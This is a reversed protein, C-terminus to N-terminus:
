ENLGLSSGYGELLRNTKRMGAPGSGTDMLLRQKLPTNKRTYADLLLANIEDGTLGAEALKNLARESFQGQDAVLDVLKQQQSAVKRESQKFSFEADQIRARDVTRSGMFTSLHEMPSQEVVGYSRGGPVLERDLSNFYTADVLSKGGVLPAVALYAKRKQADTYMGMGATDLLAMGATKGVQSMFSLAPFVDILSQTDELFFKALFPNWRMGSGVDLGTVASPIGRELWAPSEQLIRKPDPMWDYSQDYEVLMDRMFQYEVLIPLGIAGAMLQTVLMTSLAPLASRLTREKAMFQIDAVLNGLQATGYTLLPSAAQGVIGAKDVWAAKNSRNYAVMTLDTANAVADNLAMGTLGKGRYHEIMMNATWIRSFIDAAESPSQGTILRMVESFKKGSGAEMWKITNLENQLQPRLSTTNDILYRMVAASVADHTVAGFSRMSGKSFSNVIDMMPIDTDRLIHRIASPATLLQSVWFGPRNMLTSLYFMSSMVGMSKDVPSVKAVYDKKGFMKAVNTVLGDGANRVQKDFVKAWGWEPVANLGVDRIHSAMNFANPMGDVIAPDTLLRETDYKINNKTRISAQEDIWDFIANKYADGLEARTKFWESGAYGEVGKRFEQHKGFKMGTTSMQDLANTLGYVEPDLGLRDFMDRAFDSLEGLNATGELAKGIDGFETKYGPFSAVKEQFMRAEMETRFLQVRYIVDNAFVGVAFKGKRVAPYYDPRFPQVKRGQQKFLTNNEEFALNLAKKESVYADLVKKPVNAAELQKIRKALQHEFMTGVQEGADVLAKMEAKLSDITVAEDFFRKNWDHLVAGDEVTLDHFTKYVSNNDIYQKLEMWRKGVGRNADPNIGFKLTHEFSVKAAEARRVIESVYNVVPNDFIENLQLKGFINKYAVASKTGIDSLQGAKAMGVLQDQTYKLVTNINQNGLGRQIQRVLTARDAQPNIERASTVLTEGIGQLETFATRVKPDFGLLDMVGNLVKKLMSVKEVGKLSNLYSAFGEHSLGYALFEKLNSVPKTGAVKPLDKVSNYLNTLQNIARREKSTLKSPDLQFQDIANSSGRHIVEHVLVTANDPAKTSNITIDETGVGYRGLQPIDQYRIDPSIWKNKLLAKSISSLIHTEPLNAVIHSLGARWGGTEVATRLGAITTPPTKYEPTNQSFDHKNGAVREADAVLRQASLTELQKTLREYEAKKAGRGPRRGLIDKTAEIAEKTAAIAGNLAVVSDVPPIPLPLEGQSGTRPTEPARGYIQALEAEINARAAASLSGKLKAEKNATVYAQVEASQGRFKDIDFARYIADTDAGEGAYISTARGQEALPSLSEDTPRPPTPVEGTTRPAEQTRALAAAEDRAKAEAKAQKLEQELSKKKEALRLAEADLNVGEEGGRQSNLSKGGLENARRNVEQLELVLQEVETPKPVVVPDKGGKTVTALDSKVSALQDDLNQLEKQANELVYAKDPYKAVTVEAKALKEELVTRYNTLQDQQSTLRKLQEATAQELPPPQLTGTDPPPVTGPPPPTGTGKARAAPSMAGFGGGLVAAMGMSLPDFHERQLDPYDSLIKNRIATDAENIGLNLGIGELARGGMGSFVPGFKSAIRGGVSAPVLFEAGTLLGSTLGSKMAAERDGSDALVNQFDSTGAITGGLAGGLAAASLGGTFPTALAAPIAAGIVPGMAGLSTAIPNVKASELSAQHAKQFEEDTGFGFSKKVGATVNSAGAGMSELYGMEQPPAVASPLSEFAEIVEAMTVDDPFTYPKGEFTYTKAM